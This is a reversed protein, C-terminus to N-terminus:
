MASEPRKHWPRSGHWRTQSEARWVLRAEPLRDRVLKMAEFLLNLGQYAEFTGTYLVAPTTDTLQLSRRM